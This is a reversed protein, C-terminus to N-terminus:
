FIAETAIELIDLYKRYVYIKDQQRGSVAEVIGLKLMYSLTFGMVTRSTHKSNYFVLSSMKSTKM